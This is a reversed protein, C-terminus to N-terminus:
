GVDRVRQCTPLKDLNDRIITNSAIKMLRYAKTDNFPLSNRLMYTFDDPDTLSQAENLDNGCKLFAQTSKQAHHIGTEWSNTIRKVWDVKPGQKAKAQPM